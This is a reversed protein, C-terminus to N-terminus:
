VDDGRQLALTEDHAARLGVLVVPDIIHQFGLTFDNTAMQLRPFWRLKTVEPTPFFVTGDQAGVWYRFGSDRPAPKHLTVRFRVDLYFRRTDRKRGVVWVVDGILDRVSKDTLIAFETCEFFEYGMVDPSHYAVWHRISTPQGSPTRKSPGQPTGALSALPRIVRSM